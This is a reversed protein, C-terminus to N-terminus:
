EVSGAVRALCEAHHIETLGHHTSPQSGPIRPIEVGEVTEENGVRDDVCRSSQRRRTAIGLLLDPSFRTGRHRAQQVVHLLDEDAAVDLAAVDLHSAHHHGPGHGRLEAADIATSPGEPHVLRHDCM